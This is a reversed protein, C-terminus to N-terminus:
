RAYVHVTSCNVPYIPVAAPHHYGQKQSYWPWPSSPKGGQSRSPFRGDCLLRIRFALLLPHVGHQHDIRLHDQALDRGQARAAKGSSSRGLVLPGTRGTRSSTPVPGGREQYPPFRDAGNKIPHSGTRSTRSLTPVPGVREHYPPFRNSENMIPHSDTWSTRSLAAVPELPGQCCPFRYSGNKIPHSGTRGTGSLSPVPGVRKKIPKPM